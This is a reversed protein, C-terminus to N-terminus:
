EDFYLRLYKQLMHYAKLWPSAIFFSSDIIFNIHRRAKSDEHCFIKKTYKYNNVFEISKKLM